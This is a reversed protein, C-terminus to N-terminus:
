GYWSVCLCGEPLLPFYFRFSCSRPLSGLYYGKLYQTLDTLLMPIFKGATGSTNKRPHIRGYCYPFLAVVICQDSIPTLPCITRTGSHTGHKCHHFHEISTLVGPVEPLFGIGIAHILEHSSLGCLTLELLMHALVLLCCTLSSPFGILGIYSQAIEM